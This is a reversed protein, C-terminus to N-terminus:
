QAQNIAKIIDDASAAHILELSGDAQRIAFSPTGSSAAQIAEGDTATSEKTGSRSNAIPKWKDM